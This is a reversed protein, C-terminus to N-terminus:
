QARGGGQAGWDNIDRRQQEMNTEHHAWEAATMCVRFYRTRSGLEPRSRCVLRKSQRDPRAARAPATAEPEPAADDAPSEAEITFPDEVYVPDAESPAPRADAQTLALALLLLGTM